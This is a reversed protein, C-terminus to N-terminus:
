ILAFNGSVYITTGNVMIKIVSSSANPNWSTSLGTSADIAAINSRAQGGITAFSGGVYVVTNTPNLAITSVAGSSNPNWSTALGTSLSLAAINNRLQGGITTFSGGAYVTTGVRTVTNVVGDPNPNWSTVVGASNIQALMNRATTGVQTFNGGIIYGGSGDALVANVTGNVKPWSGLALPNATGADINVFGGPYKSMTTFNGGVYLTNGLQASSLVAGNFLWQTSDHRLVPDCQASANTRIGILVILVLALRYIHTM